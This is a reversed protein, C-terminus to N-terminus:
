RWRKRLLERKWEGDYEYSGDALKRVYANGYILLDWEVRVRIRLPLKALVCRADVMGM